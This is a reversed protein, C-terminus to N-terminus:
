YGMVDLLLDFTSANSADVEGKSLAMQYESAQAFCKDEISPEEVKQGLPTKRIEQDFVHPNDEQSMFELEGDYPAIENVTLGIGLCMVEDDHAGPKAEAKGSKSYVFTTMESCCRTDAWGVGGLLWKKINGVLTRRSNTDTWWGKRYSVSQKTVDFRPMLFPNPLDHVEVLLDFVSLGPGNTEVAWWPYIGEDERNTYYKTMATIIRSFQVEDIQSYYSAVVSQSERCLIKCVSYDGDEKGEAIDCSALYTRDKRPEEYVVVYDDNESVAEVEEIETTGYPVKLYKVPDRRTKLLILVRKGAQGDFIPRGAGIYDIDLEQAIETPGRRQCQRDYWPSRLGYWNNHDVTESALESKPYVCYLGAAKEPHLSWHLTHKKIKPDQALEYFKGAAGFPTSVAIRVPTADGAATWASEDTSEWKAFEDMLIAAYRGGTSFNPNNSEGTITSGSEPNVLKMFNDHSKPNFGEPQLWWPLRYFLYRAKEFLTRMDGKKDVYDEIRSGLLFDAGGSPNLWFWVFTSLTIWSVGMDRSKEQLRDQPESATGTRIAEVLDLIVDDQFSYTCFPQHHHPRKRVDLTFFFANFAFLPNRFFYEKLHVRFSESESAKALMEHRWELNERYNKPFESEM